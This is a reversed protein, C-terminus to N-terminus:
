SRGTSRALRLERVEAYLELYADAQRQLTHRARVQALAASASREREGADELMRLIAIALADADGREVLAGTEGDTVLEPIGGVATAVVPTGCAMAEIISLPLNEARAPHVYIDAARLYAAVRGPDATFPAHVVPLGALASDDESGLAVLLIDDRTRVIRPLAAVLTPFDKYPNSRLNQGAFLVIAAEAPLGLEERAARRNGPAFVTTDVGNPIVRALRGGELVGAEEAMRMLWASPSVLAVESRKLVDRKLALNAATADRRIAIPTELNPCSGCGSRWGLCDFPHACHGTLLWADHMTLVAPVRAALGPLARLDFYGGHLNHLHLAHPPKPPLDLLRRTGPYDMDERGALVAAYRSPDSAFLVGRAAARRLGGPHAALGASAAALTRAWTSRAADNPIELVGPEDSRRFGVAAWSSLGRRLYEAHLDMMVREAGGARDSTGVQLVRSIGAETM